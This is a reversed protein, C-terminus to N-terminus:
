NSPLDYLVEKIFKIKREMRLKDATMIAGLSTVASELEDNIIIYNYKQAYVLEKNAEVMRKDIKEPTETGRNVLRRRLEDMSPPAIFVFTAEPMKSRVKMGGKVDIELIVDIGDEIAKLVPEIPTGYSHEVYNEYEIFYNNKVRDQFLEKSIFHYHIGDVEGDKIRPERTTCSISLFVNERRKILERCITGKGCGSPGSVVFLVGKNM